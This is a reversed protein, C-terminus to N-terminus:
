CGSSPSELCTWWRFRTPSPMGSRAQPSATPPSCRTRTSTAGGPAGGERDMFNENVDHLVGHANRVVELRCPDSYHKAELFLRIPLSFAPTFAFEGLVDVQHDAGRGRVRLSGGAGRLEARDQQEDVLLWYGSHRLLWALAEELLYGRLASRKAM